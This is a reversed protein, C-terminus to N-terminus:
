ESLGEFDGLASQNGCRRNILLPHGYEQPSKEHRGLRVVCSGAVLALGITLVRAFVPLLLRYRYRVRNLGADGGGPRGWGRRGRAGLAGNAISRM